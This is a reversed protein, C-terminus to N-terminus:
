VTPQERFDNTWVAQVLVIDEGDNWCLKGVSLNHFSPSVIFVMLLILVLFVLFFDAIKIRRLPELQKIFPVTLICVFGSAVAYPQWTSLQPRFPWICIYFCPSFLHSHIEVAVYCLRDASKLSFSVSSLHAYLNSEHRQFTLIILEPGSSSAPIHTRHTCTNIHLPKNVVLTALPQFPISFFYMIRLDKGFSSSTKAKSGHAVGPVRAAERVCSAATFLINWRRVSTM